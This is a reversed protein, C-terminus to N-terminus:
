GNDSTVIEAPRLLKSSITINAAKAAGVNIKLHVRKNETVFQVIGGRRAFDTTDGVTLINRGKLGALLKPLQDTESRGVFLIDCATVEEGHRYRQVKFPRNNVLEGHVIEDLFGDFPDDGLVGIVFPQTDATAPSPWEVFQAFNFLYVAKVQYENFTQAFAQRAVLAILLTLLWAGSIRARPRLCVNAHSTTALLAEKSTQSQRQTLAAM